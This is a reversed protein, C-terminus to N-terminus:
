AKAKGSTAAALSRGHKSCIYKLGGTLTFGPASVSLGTIILESAHQDSAIRSTLKGLRRQSYKM